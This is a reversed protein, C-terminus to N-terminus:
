ERALRERERERERENDKYMEPFTAAGRELNFFIIRILPSFM